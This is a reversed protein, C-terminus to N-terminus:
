AAGCVSCNQRRRADGARLEDARFLTLGAVFLDHAIKPRGGVRSQLRFSFVCLVHAALRAVPGPTQVNFGAAAGTRDDVRTLRRFSAELTVQFHPCLELQRMVMGHQFAFHTAGITVIRMLSDGDFAAPGVNLLVEFGAPKSEQASVLSAKLAMGLLAARKNVLMLCQTLTTHDAM